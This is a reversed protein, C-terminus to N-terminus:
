SADSIGRKSLAYSVPVQTASFPPARVDQIWAASTEPIARDDKRVTYHM